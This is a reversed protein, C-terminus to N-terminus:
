PGIPPRRPRPSETLTHLAGMAHAGVLAFRDGQHELPPAFRDPEDGLRVLDHGDQHCLHPIRFTFTLTVGRVVKCQLKANRMGCEPSPFNFSCWMPTDRVARYKVRPLL